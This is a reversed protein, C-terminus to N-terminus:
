LVFSTQKKNKEGGRVPHSSSRNSNQLQNTTGSFYLLLYGM